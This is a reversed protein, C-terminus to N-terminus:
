DIWNSNSSDDSEDTSCMDLLIENKAHIWSRYSNM